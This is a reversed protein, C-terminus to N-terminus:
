VEEKDSFYNELLKQYSKSISSKDNEWESIRTDDTGIAEAVEKQTLNYKKRLEKLEQGSM